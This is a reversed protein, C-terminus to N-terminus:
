YYKLLVMKNERVVVTFKKHYVNLHDKNYMIPYEELIGAEKSEKIGVRNKTSHRYEICNFANMGYKAKVMNCFDRSNKLKLNYYCENYRMIHASHPVRYVCEGNDLINEVVTVNITYVDDNVLDFCLNPEVILIDDDNYYKTHNLVMYNSEQMKFAGGLHQYSMTNEVPFCEADVCKSEIFMRMDDNTMRREGMDDEEFNELVMFKIIDGPLDDLFRICKRKDEDEEAMNYIITEGLRAICGGINVGLEIKVVDRDEIKNYKSNEEYIFYGVCDNLSVCTPFAVGKVKEKKYVKNCEEVIRNDGYKCLEYVDLVEGNNIKEKLEGMVVGCIRASDNYKTLTANDLKTNM